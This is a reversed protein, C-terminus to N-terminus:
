RGGERGRTALERRRPTPILSRMAFAYATGFTAFWGQDDGTLGRGVGADVNLRPSIQYRMGAEATWSLDEGGHLPREAFTGATVLLSRLPLPRDLAVGAMWRSAEGADEGAAPEDGFTYEANAHLRTHGFTRTTIGKLSAYAHDPALRGVPLVVSAGVALAPLTLTEVNLNHLASIGIGALGQVQSGGADDVVALPFGVELQTRPLIGYAIEPEVEWTYTGGRARHLRVPALQLEFAYREVPYADEIRLPRGADTNFYDTQAAAPAAAAVIALAALGGWGLTRTSM